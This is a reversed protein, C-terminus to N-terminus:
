GAGSTGSPGTTSAPANGCVSSDLYDSACTTRSKWSTLFTNRLNTIAATQRTSTLQSKIAATAASLSEVSQPTSKTVEFVYYGFATKLPGELAGIPAKFIATSFTPTEEGQQIGAAAGGTNKTTPDISYQKAVSAFSAGGSLLSRVKQATAQSSVLVLLINRRAPQTYQAVHARYYSAIQASTVKGAESDLKKTIANQLLSFRLYSKVDAITYGSESLFDDLKTTTPFQSKAETEWQKDVQAQTVNVGVDYAQGQIWVDEALLTIVEQSLQQYSSACQSELLSDSPIKAGKKYEARTAAICVKYDPPDPVPPPTQGTNVYRVRDAILLWHAFSQKSIAFSGVVAIADAPVNAAAAITSQGGGLPGSGAFPSGGACAGVGVATAIAAVSAVATRIKRHVLTASALSDRSARRLM